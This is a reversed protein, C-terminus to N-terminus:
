LLHATEHLVSSIRAAVTREHLAVPDFYLRWYQDVAISMGAQALLGPTEVPVMSLIVHSAEPWVRCAALRAESLEIPVKLKVM